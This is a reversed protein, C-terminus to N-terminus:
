TVTGHQATGRGRERLGTAEVTQMLVFAHYRTGM